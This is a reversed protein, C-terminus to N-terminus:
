QKVLRNAVRETFFNIIQYEEDTMQDLPLSSSMYRPHYREPDPHPVAFSLSLEYNSHFGYSIYVEALKHNAVIVLWRPFFRHIEGIGITKVARYRDACVNYQEFDIEYSKGENDNVENDNVIRFSGLEHSYIKVEEDEDQIFEYKPNDRLQRSTRLLWLRIQRAKQSLNDIQTPDALLESRASKTADKNFTTKLLLENLSESTGLARRLIETRIVRDQLKGILQDIDQELM